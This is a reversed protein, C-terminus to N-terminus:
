WLIQGCVVKRRSNHLIPMVKENLASAVQKAQGRKANFELVRTFM